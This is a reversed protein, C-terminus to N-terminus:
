FDYRGVMNSLAPPSLDTNCGPAEPRLHLSWFPATLSTRVIRARLALYTCPLRKADILQSCSINLMAIARPSPLYEGQPMM